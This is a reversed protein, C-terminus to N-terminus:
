SLVKPAGLVVLCVYNVAVYLIVVGTVGIILSRPLNKEPERIEGAVFTATQWGGYSFLVPVM